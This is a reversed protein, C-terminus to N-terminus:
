RHRALERMMTRRKAGSLRMLTEVPLHGFREAVHRRRATETPLVAVSDKIKPWDLSRLVAPLHEPYITPFPFGDLPKVNRGIGQAIGKPSLLYRRQEPHRTLHGADAMLSVVTLRDLEPWEIKAAAAVEDMTLGRRPERPAATDDGDRWRDSLDDDESAIPGRLHAWERELEALIRRDDDTLVLPPPPRWRPANQGVCDFPM